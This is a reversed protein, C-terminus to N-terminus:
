AAIAVSGTEAGDRSLLLLASILPLIESMGDTFGATSRLARIPSASALAAYLCSRTRFGHPFTSLHTTIPSSISLPTPNEPLLCRTSGFYEVQLLKLCSTFITCEALLATVVVDMIESIHTWM